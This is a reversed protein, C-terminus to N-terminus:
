EINKREQQGIFETIRIGLHDDMVVVEGLAFLTNNVFLKSTGGAVTDLEITSGERMHLVDNITLKANGLQSKIHMPIDLFFDLNQNGSQQIKDPSMDTFDVSKPESSMSNSNDTQDSDHEIDSRPTEDAM